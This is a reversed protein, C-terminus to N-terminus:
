KLNLKREKILRQEELEKEIQKVTRKETDKNM